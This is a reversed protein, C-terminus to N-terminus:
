LKKEYLVLREEKLPSIGVKTFGLKEYYSRLGPNSESCDLRLYTKEHKKCYNEVWKLIINGLGRGAYKRSTTLSHIYGSPETRKGWFLKDEFQLRFMGIIESGHLVFFFYKKNFGDTVWKKNAETPNLWNQWHDIDRSKLWGAATELLGFAIDIEKKDAKRFILDNETIQAM